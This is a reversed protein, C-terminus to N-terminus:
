RRKLYEIADTKSVVDGFKADIDWLHAEHQEDSRDGVCTEPVIPVFGHASADSVSARICGSTSCGIIILTDVGMATLMSALETGHFASAHPKELVHDDDKVHLREDLQVPYTGRTWTGLEPIKKPWLGGDIAKSHSYVVRTFIVPVENGHAADVIDNSEEILDSLDSGIPEEPDTEGNQLDVVLVAPQEGPTLDNGTMDAEGYVREKDGM